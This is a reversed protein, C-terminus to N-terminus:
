YKFARLLNPSYILISVKSKIKGAPLFHMKWLTAKYIIGDWSQDWSVKQKPLVRLHFPGYAQSWALRSLLWLLLESAARELYGPLFILSLPYKWGPCYLPQSLFRYAELPKKTVDFHVSQPVMRFIHICEWSYTAKSLDVKDQGCQRDKSKM